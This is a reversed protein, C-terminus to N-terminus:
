KLAPIEATVGNKFTFLIRKNDYAKVNEVTINFLEEDFESILSDRKKLIKLFQKINTHKASRELREADLTALKNRAIEFRESYANYKQLYENQNIAINANEEISKRLLELVIDCDSQVEAHETDIATTDTLIDCVKSYATIIEDKHDIVGNFAIIFAKQIEEDTLRSTQCEKNGYHKGNCSWVQRRYQSNSHCIKSGYSSGCDGCFIKGSFIHAAGKKNSNKHKIMELAALDFIEPEIIAPHSQEVYYQPVEGENTKQKKTLFDVTYKKQLLAEGKYKENTLISIVTQTRWKSKGAPTPIGDNTLAAAITFPSKGYLFQRYIRRIIEAESEVIKPNGDEGKEYGLFCKYPLYVKGDNMSKRKGWRVNESISRSEEQALSSMITILLEGKSDLTYINEKEFYVEVGNEKLKRVTILTDVTNRAFRSVSKTLILDIKGALADRVMDNFGNRKKTNTGTVAEDTYVKVFEWEQNSEIHRTYFDVQADYSSLQEDKDSSVRAYGAVRKKRYELGLATYPLDVRAQIVSVKREGNSM